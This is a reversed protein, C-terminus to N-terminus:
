PSRGLLGSGSEAVNGRGVGAGVDGTESTQKRSVISLQPAGGNSKLLRRGSDEYGRQCRARGGRAVTRTRLFPM